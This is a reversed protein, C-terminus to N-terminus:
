ILKRSPSPDQRVVHATCVRQKGKFVLIIRHFGTDDLTLAYKTYKKPDDRDRVFSVEPKGTFRDHKPARDRRALGSILGVQETLFFWTDRCAFYYGWIGDEDPHYFWWPLDPAIQEVLQTKYTLEGNVYVPFKVKRPYSRSDM